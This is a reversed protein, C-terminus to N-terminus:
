LYLNLYIAVNRLQHNPPVVNLKTPHSVVHYSLLYKVNVAYEINNIDIFPVLM